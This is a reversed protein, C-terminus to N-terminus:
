QIEKWTMKGATVGWTIAGRAVRNGHPHSCKQSWNQFNREAVPTPLAVGASLEVLPSGLAITHVTKREILVSYDSCSNWVCV